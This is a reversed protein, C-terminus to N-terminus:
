VAAGAPVMGPIAPLFRGTETPGAVGM